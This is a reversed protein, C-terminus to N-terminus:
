QGEFRLPFFAIRGHIKHNVWTLYPAGSNDHTVCDFRLRRADKM